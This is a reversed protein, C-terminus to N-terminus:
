ECHAWLWLATSSRSWWSLAQPALTISFQGRGELPWSPEWSRCSSKELTVPGTNQSGPACRVLPRKVLAEQTGHAVGPAEWPDNRKCCGKLCATSNSEQELHPCRPETLNILPGPESPQFTLPPALTGPAKRVGGEGRGGARVPAQGPTGCQSRGSNSPRIMGPVTKEERPQFNSKQRDGRSRVGRGALKRWERYGAWLDMFTLYAFSALVWTCGIQDYRARRRCCLAKWATEGSDPTRASPGKGRASVQSTVQTVAGRTHSEGERSPVEQLTLSFPFWTCLLGPPLAPRHPPSFM